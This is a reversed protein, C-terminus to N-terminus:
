RPTRPPDPDSLQQPTLKAPDTQPTGKFFMSYAIFLVVLLAVGVGGWLAAPPVEKSKM